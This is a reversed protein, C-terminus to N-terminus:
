SGAEGRAIGVVVGDTIEPAACAEDIRGVTRAPSSDSRLEAILEIGAYSIGWARVNQLEPLFSRILFRLM